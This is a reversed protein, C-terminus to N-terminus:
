RLILAMGDFAALAGRPVVVVDGGYFTVAWALEGIVDAVVGRGGEPGAPRLGLGDGSIRAPVTTSEEVLLTQGEGRIAAPWVAAVGGVVEGIAAAGEVAALAEQELRSTHGTILRGALRGLADLGTRAADCPVTGVVQEPRTTMELFM